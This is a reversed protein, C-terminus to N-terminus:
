SKCGPREGWGLKVRLIEFNDHGVPHILRLARPKRRVVVRDGTELAHSTQGDCTVQARSAAEDIVIEIHSDATVVLPRNSLTHPCIPVLVIAELRPELIPGGGSLAYATSGTPTSVILGDARQSTVFHRNIYTSFEIMRAMDAKHVVVDNLADSHLLTEGDREITASLLFRPEEIYRGDLIEALRREMEDPSVDVLFGLRGLNVGLLPVGSDAVSRAAHLFTGDGGVVVVLDAECGIRGPPCAPVDLDALHPAASGDALLERGRERLFAAVRRVTAPVAPDERKAVLGIRRFRGAPATVGPGGRDSFGRLALVNRASAGAPESSLGCFGSSFHM